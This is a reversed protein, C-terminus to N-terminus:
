DRRDARDVRAALEAYTVLGDTDSVLAPADGFGELHDAFFRL